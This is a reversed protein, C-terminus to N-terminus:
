RFSVYNGLDLLLETMYLTKISARSTMLQKVSEQVIDRDEYFFSPNPVKNGALEYLLAAMSINLNYIKKIIDDSQDASDLTPVMLFLLCLKLKM